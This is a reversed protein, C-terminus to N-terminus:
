CSVLLFVYEVPLSSSISEQSSPLLKPKSSSVMPPPVKGVQASQQYKSPSINDAESGYRTRPTSVVSLKNKIEVSVISLDPKDGNQAVEDLFRVDFADHHDVDIM